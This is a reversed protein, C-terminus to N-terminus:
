RWDERHAGREAATGIWWEINAVADIAEELDCMKRHWAVEDASPEFAFDDRKVLADDTSRARADIRLRIIAHPNDVSAVYCSHAQSLLKLEECRQLLPLLKQPDIVDFHEGKTKV